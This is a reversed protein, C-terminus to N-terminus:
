LELEGAYIRMMEKTQIKGSSTRPFDETREVFKIHQPIRFKSIQGQCLVKVEEVTMTVGIQLLIWAAVVEGLRLDPVGFVHVELINPQSQLFDEIEKPYIKEGGRNIMEKFRGVISLHGSARLFGADRKGGVGVVM